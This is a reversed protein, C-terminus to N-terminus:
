LVPLPVDRTLLPTSTRTGLLPQFVEADTGDCPFEYCGITAPDGWACDRDGIMHCVSSPRCAAVQEPHRQRRKLLQNCRASATRHLFSDHLEAGDGFESCTPTPSLKGDVTIATQGETICRRRPAVTVAPAFNPWIWAGMRGM